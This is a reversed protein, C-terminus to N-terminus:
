DITLHGRRVVVFPAGGDGNLHVMMLLLSALRRAFLLRVMRVPSEVHVAAGLESDRVSLLKRRGAHRCHVLARVDANQRMATLRIPHYDFTVVVARASAIVEWAVPLVEAAIMRPVFLDPWVIAVMGVYFPVPLNAQGM